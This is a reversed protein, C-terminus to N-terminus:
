LSGAKFGEIALVKLEDLDIPGFRPLVYRDLVRQTGDIESPQITQKTYKGIQPKQRMPRNM